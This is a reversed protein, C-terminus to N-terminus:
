VKYHHKLAQDWFLPRDKKLVWKETYGIVELFNRIKSLDHEMVKEITLHPLFRALRRYAKVVYQRHSLTTRVHERGGFQDAFLRFDEETLNSRVSALRAAPAMGFEHLLRLIAAERQAPMWAELFLAPDPPQDLEQVRSELSMGPSILDCVSVWDSRM